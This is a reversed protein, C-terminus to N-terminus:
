SGCVKDKCNNFCLVLDIYYVMWAFGLCPLVDEGGLICIVATAFWAVLAIEDCGIGDPQGANFWNWWDDANVGSVSYNYFTNFNDTCCKTCDCAANCNKDYPLGDMIAASATTSLSSWLFMAAVLLTYTKIKM